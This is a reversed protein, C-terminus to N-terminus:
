PWVSFVSVLVGVGEGALNRCWIGFWLCGLLPALPVFIAIVIVVVSPALSVSVAFHVLNVVTWATGPECRFVSVICLWSFLIILIYTTWIGPYQFWSTNKNTDPPPIVKVYIGGPGTEVMDGRSLRHFLSEAM